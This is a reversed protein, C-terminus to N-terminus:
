HCSRFKLDGTVRTVPDTGSCDFKAHGKMARVGNISSSTYQVDADWVSCQTKEYRMAEGTGPQNLQVHATGSEPLAVRGVLQKQNDDFFSIGWYGKQMGSQCANVKMTWDGGPGSSTVTGTANDPFMVTAARWLGHFPGGWGGILYLAFFAMGIWFIWIAVGQRVTYAM